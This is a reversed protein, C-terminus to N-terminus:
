KWRSAFHKSCSLGYRGHETCTAIVIYMAAVWLEGDVDVHVASGMVSGEM